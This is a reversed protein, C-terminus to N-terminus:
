HLNGSKHSVRIANHAVPIADCAVPIADCAVPIVYRTVNFFIYTCYSSARTHMVM